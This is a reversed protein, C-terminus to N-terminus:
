LKFTLLIVDWKVNVQEFDFISVGSFITSYTLLLIVLVVDKVEGSSYASTAM